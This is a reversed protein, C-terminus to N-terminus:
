RRRALPNLPRLEEIRVREPNAMRHLISNVLSRISPSGTRELIGRVQSRYTSMSVRRAVCVEEADMGSALLRLVSSMSSSLGASRAISTVEEGVMAAFTNESLLCDVGLAEINDKDLPFPVFRARSLAIQRCWDSSCSHSAAVLMPMRPYQARLSIMARISSQNYCGIIAGVVDDRVFPHESSPVIECRAFVALISSAHEATTRDLGVILITGVSAMSHYYMRVATWARFERLQVCARLPDVSRADDNSAHELLKLFKRVERPADDFIASPWEGLVRAVM